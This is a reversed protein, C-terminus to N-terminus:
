YTRTPESIQIISLIQDYVESVTARPAGESAATDANEETILPVCPLSEHGKYTYQYLQALNFYVYARNAFGQAVYLQLEPDTTDASINKLVSNASDIIKYAYYWSMNNLYNNNGGLDYENVTAFWNYGINPSVFDIGASELIMLVSPWGFDLHASSYVSCYQNYTSSIGVVGAKALEPNIGIAEEKQGTTVYYNDPLTNLDNCATLASAVMMPGLAYAAINKFSINM